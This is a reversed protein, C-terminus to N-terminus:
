VPWIILITSKYFPDANQFPDRFLLIIIVMLVSQYKFSPMVVKNNDEEDPATGLHSKKKLYIRIHLPNFTVFLYKFPVRSSFIKKM